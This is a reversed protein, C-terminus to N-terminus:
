DECIKTDTAPELAQSDYCVFTCCWFLFDCPDFDQSHFQDQDTAKIGHTDTGSM